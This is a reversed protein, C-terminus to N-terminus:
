WTPNEETSGGLRTVVLNWGKIIGFAGKLPKQGGGGDVVLVVVVPKYPYLLCFEKINPKQGM